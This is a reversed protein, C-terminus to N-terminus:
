TFLHLADCVIFVTLLAFAAVYGCASARCPKEEDKVAYYILGFIPLFFSLICLAISITDTFNRRRFARRSSKSRPCGCNPCIVANDLMQHGCFTCFGM